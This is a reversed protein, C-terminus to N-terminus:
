TEERRKETEDNEHKRGERRRGRRFKGKKGEEEYGRAGLHESIWRQFGMLM